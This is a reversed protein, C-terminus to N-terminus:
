PTAVFKGGLKRDIDALGDVKVWDSSDDLRVFKDTWDSCQQLRIRIGDLRIDATRSDVAEVDGPHVWIRWHLLLWLSAWRKLWRDERKRSKRAWNLIVSAPTGEEKVGRRERLWSQVQELAGRKVLEEKIKREDALDKRIYDSVPVEDFLALGYSQMEAFRMRDEMVDELALALQNVTMESLNEEM